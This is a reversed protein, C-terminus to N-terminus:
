RTDASNARSGRIPYGLAYDIDLLILHADTPITYLSVIEMMDEAHVRAGARGVGAQPVPENTIDTVSDTPVAIQSGRLGLLMPGGNRTLRSPRLDAGPTLSHDMPASMEVSTDRPPRPPTFMRVLM